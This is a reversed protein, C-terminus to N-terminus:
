LIYFNRIVQFNGAICAACEPEDAAHLPRSVQTNYLLTCELCKLQYSGQMIYLLTRRLCKLPYNEQVIYLM